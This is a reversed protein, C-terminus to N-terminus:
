DVMSEVLEVTSGRSVSHIRIPVTAAPRFIWLDLTWKGYSHMSFWKILGPLSFFDRAELAAGAARQRGDRTGEAM